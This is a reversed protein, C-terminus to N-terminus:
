VKNLDLDVAGASIHEVRPKASTKSAANASHTVIQWAVALGNRSCMEKIEYM